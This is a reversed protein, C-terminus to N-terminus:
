LNDLRKGMTNRLDRIQSELLKADGTLGGEKEVQQKPQAAILKNINTIALKNEQSKGELIEIKQGTEMLMSHLGRIQDTEQQLVRIKKHVNDVESSKDQQTTKLKDIVKQMATFQEQNKTQADNTNRLSQAIKDTLQKEISRVVSTLDTTVVEDRKIM